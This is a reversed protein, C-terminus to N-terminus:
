KIWCPMSESGKHDWFVQAVLCGPSPTSWKPPMAASRLLQPWFPLCHPSVQWCMERQLTSRPGNDKGVLRYCQLLEGTGSALFQRWHMVTIGVQGSLVLCKHLACFFSHVLTEKRSDNIRSQQAQVAKTLILFSTTMNCAVWFCIIIEHLLSCLGIM